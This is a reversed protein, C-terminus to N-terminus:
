RVAEAITAILKDIGCPKALVAHADLAAPDEIWGSLVIRRMAPSFRRAFVLLDEGGLGPMVLDTVLVDHGGDRIARAGRLGGPVFSLMWRERQRYLARALGRLLLEDNDVFLVSLRGGEEM